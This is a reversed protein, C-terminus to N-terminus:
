IDLLGKGITEMLTLWNRYCLFFPKMLCLYKIQQVNKKFFIQSHIAFLLCRFDVIVFYIYQVVEIYFSVLVSSSSIFKRLCEAVPGMSGTRGELWFQNQCTKCQSRASHTLNNSLKCYKHFSSNIEELYLPNIQTKEVMVLLIYYSTSHPTFPIFIMGMLFQLLNSGGYGRIHRLLRSTFQPLGESSSSCFFGFGRTVASTAGYLHFIKLSVYFLLYIFLCYLFWIMLQM